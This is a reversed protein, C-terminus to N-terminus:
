CCRVFYRFSDRKQREDGAGGIIAILQDGTSKVFTASDGAGIAAVARGALPATGTLALAALRLLSRRHTM